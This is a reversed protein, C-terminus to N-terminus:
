LLVERATARSHQLMYHMSMKSLLLEDKSNFHKIDSCCFLFHKLNSSRHREAIVMLYIM